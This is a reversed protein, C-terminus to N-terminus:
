ALGTLDWALITRTLVQGNMAFFFGVNGFFLWRFEPISLM